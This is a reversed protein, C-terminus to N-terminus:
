ILNLLQFEGLNKMEKTNLIIGTIIQVALMIGASVGLNWAYTINSPVPYVFLANYVANM